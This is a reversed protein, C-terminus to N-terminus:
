LWGNQTLFQATHHNEFRVLTNHNRRMCPFTEIRATTRASGRSTILYDHDVTNVLLPEGFYTSNVSRNWLPEQQLKSIIDVYLACFWIEGCKVIITKLIRFCNKTMAKFSGIFNLHSENFSFKNRHFIFFNCTIRFSHRFITVQHFITRQEIHRIILNQLTQM